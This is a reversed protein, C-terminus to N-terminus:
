VANVDSQLSRRERAFRCVTMYGIGTSRQIERYSMGQDLLKAVHRREWDDMPQRYWLCVGYNRVGTPLPDGYHLWHEYHKHCWGRAHHRQECGEIKCKREETKYAYEIM